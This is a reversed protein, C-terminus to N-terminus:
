RLSLHANKGDKYRGNSSPNASDATKREDKSMYSDDLSNMEPYFVDGHGTRGDENGASPGRRVEVDGFCM